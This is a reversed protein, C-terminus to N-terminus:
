ARDALRSDLQRRKAHGRITDLTVSLMMSDHCNAGSLTVGFPTDRADTGLHRMTGPKGRDTLNPGMASGGLKGPCIHQGAHGAELGATRCERPAGTVDPAPRGVPGSAALRALPALLDHRVRLGNRYASVGM